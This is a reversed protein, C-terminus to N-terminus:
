LIYTGSDAWSAHFYHLEMLDLASVYEDSYLEKGDESSLNYFQFLTDMTLAVDEDTMYRIERRVYMCKAKMSTSTLWDETVRSFEDIVFSYDEFAECPVIVSSSKSSDESPYYYGTYCTEMDSELCLNYRYYSESTPSSAYLNMSAYPEVVASYGDLIKYKLYESANATFYTLPSYGTRYLTFNSSSSPLSFSPVDPEVSKVHYIRYLELSAILATGLLISFIVPRNFAGSRTFRHNQQLPSGPDDKSEDHSFQVLARKEADDFENKQIAFLYRIM